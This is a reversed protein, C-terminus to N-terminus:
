SANIVSRSPSTKSVNWFRSRQTRIIIADMRMAAMGTYHMAAVGLGTFAGGAFTRGLSRGGRSAIHLGAGTVVVAVLLSALTLTVDYAVQVPLMCAIMAIFHMSWIAGGGMAVAAGALWGARARGRAQSIQAAWQLSCYAGLVSITYSLIVFLPQYHCQFTRPNEM